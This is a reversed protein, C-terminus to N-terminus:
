SVEKRRNEYSSSECIQQIIKSLASNKESPALNRKRFAVPEENRVKALHEM